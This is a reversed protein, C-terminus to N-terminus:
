GYEKVDKWIVVPTPKLLKKVAYEAEEFSRFTYPNTGTPMPEWLGSYNLRRITYLDRPEGDVYQQIILYRAM